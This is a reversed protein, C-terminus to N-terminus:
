FRFQGYLGFEDRTEQGSGLNGIKIGGDGNDHKYVLAFDVIKAPSYQIGAQYFQEKKLPATDKNPKVWDYRGFLSWKKAPSVSAFISYGEASDKPDTTKVGWNKAHFYEGGITLPMGGVKDKYALMANFRKATRYDDTAGEVDKGLKGVYGGVAANFGQYKFGLRGEIDITKTFKPDRYGGGDVASIQYNVMGDAFEGMAHVGWDASTGFKDLDTLTKEVHRYGYIGEVYPIWPMDTSGVRVKLAKDIKAELFAKKVYFARGVGSINEIDMTVNGSFTDDFKHDVGIYFRKIQFGGDKEVNGGGPADADVTSINYYMRGSIKTNEAWELGKPLASPKESAALAKDAKAATAQSNAAQQNVQTQLASIQAQLQQLQQLAAQLQEQTAAEDGTAAMAAQPATLAIALAAFSVTTKSLHRYM